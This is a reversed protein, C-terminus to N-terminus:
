FLASYFPLRRGVRDETVEIPSVVHLVTVIKEGIRGFLTHLHVFMNFNYKRKKRKIESTVYQIAGQQKKMDEVKAEVHTVHFQCMRGSPLM